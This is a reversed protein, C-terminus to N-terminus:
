LVPSFTRSLAASGALGFRWPRERAASIGVRSGTLVSRRGALGPGAAIYLPLACLDAGNHRMTVAMARTLRGPGSAVRAQRSGPAHRRMLALGEVPELARLLVAGPAGDPEVVVNLCRHVGYSVYVYAIGPRGYMVASRATRRFAHSAPDDPGRYAETEAIRGVLVGEATRHILLCGVLARAVVAAHRAFFRRALPPPLLV